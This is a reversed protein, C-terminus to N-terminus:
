NMATEGHREERWGFVLTGNYSSTSQVGEDNQQACLTGLHLAIRTSADGGEGCCTQITNCEACNPLQLIHQM